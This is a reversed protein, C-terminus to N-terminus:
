QKEFVMNWHQTLLSSPMTFLEKWFCNTYQLLNKLSVVSTVIESASRPSSCCGFHLAKHYYKAAPYRLSNDCLAGNVIIVFPEMKSTAATRSKGRYKEFLLILIEWNMLPLHSSIIRSAVTNSILLLSMVRNDKLASLIEFPKDLVNDGREM